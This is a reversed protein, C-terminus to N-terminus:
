AKAKRRFIDGLQLRLQDIKAAISLQAATETVSGGARHSRRGGAWGGACEHLESFTNEM